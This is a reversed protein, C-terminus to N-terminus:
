LNVEPLNSRIEEHTIELSDDVLHGQLYSDYAALDLLGHGSLNFLIVREEGKEKADLAENIAARIAHASEPAPVIGEAQAFQIAATFTELQPMAVAEIYGADYLMCIQPAM